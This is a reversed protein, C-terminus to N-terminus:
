RKRQEKQEQLIEAETEHRQKALHPKLAAGTKFAMFVSGIVIALGAVMLIILVTGTFM